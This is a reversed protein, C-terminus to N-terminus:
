VRRASRSPPEAAGLSSSIEEREQVSSFLASMREILTNSPIQGILEEATKGQANTSRRDVGSAILLEAMEVDWQLVATHLLTNGSAPAGPTSTEEAEHANAGFAILLRAAEVSNHAVAFGLPSVRHSLTPNPPDPDAGAELMLALAQCLPHNASEGADYYIREVCLALPTKSGSDLPPAENWRHPALALLREDDGAWIAKNLIPDPDSMPDAGLAIWARAEDYLGDRWASALREDLQAQNLTQEDLSTM